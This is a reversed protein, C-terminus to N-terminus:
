TNPNTAQLSSANEQKAKKAGEKRARKAARLNMFRLHRRQRAKEQNQTWESKIAALAKRSNESVHGDDDPAERNMFKVINNAKYLVGLDIRVADMLLASRTETYRVIMEIFLSILWLLLTIVPAIWIVPNNSTISIATTYIVVAAFIAKVTLKVHSLTHRLQQKNKKKRREDEIDYVLTFILHGITIAGIIANVIPNGIPILLACMLYAVYLAQISVSLIFSFRKLEGITKDLVARINALM